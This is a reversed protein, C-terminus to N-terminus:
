LSTGPHPDHINEILIVFELLTFQESSSDGDVSIIGQTQTHLSTFSVVSSAMSLLRFSSNKFLVLSEDAMLLSVEAWSLLIDDFTIPVTETIIKTKNPINNKQASM